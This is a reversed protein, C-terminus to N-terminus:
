KVINDVLNEFHRKTEEYGPNGPRYAVEEKIQRIIRKKHFDIVDRQTILPFKWELYRLLCTIVDHYVVCKGFYVEDQLSQQLFTYNKNDDSEDHFVLTMMLDDFIDTNWDDDYLQPMQRLFEIFQFRLQQPILKYKEVFQVPTIKISSNM